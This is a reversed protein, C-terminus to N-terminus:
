YWYFTRMESRPSRSKLRSPDEVDTTQSRVVRVQWRFLRHREGEGPYLSTPVRWSTSRTWGYHVTERGGRIYRLEVLYWDGDNLLGVSIWNLLISDNDGWFHEEQAPLLPVPAPYPPGPTPTNTPLPTPQPTPTATGLPVILSEGARIFREDEFHNAEMIAEMSTGYDMAIGLLSDGPEVIHVAVEIDLTPTPTGKKKAGAPILLQQGVSLLHPSDLNNLKMVAEVNTGAWIAISSLNDGAQVTYVFPTPTPTWDPDPTAHEPTWTPPILLAQGVRLRRPDDIDNAEMIQEISMDYRAAISGPNEGAAVVHYV